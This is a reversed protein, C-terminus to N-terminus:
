EARLSDVPNAAAAKITKISLIFFAITILGMGGAFFIWASLPARFPFDRLWDNCAWWAIPIAIVCAIIVLKLFDKSLLNVVQTISAGLVKRIGIEKQRQNATYIVLGLLGLCSIFVSLGTSWNLLKALKQESQYFDKIEQDYYNYIFDNGPYLAKFYKEIELITKKQNGAGASEPRLAIQLESHDRLEARLAMPMIGTRSSSLNFDKMVGAILINKDQGLYHGVAEAPKMYGMERAFSENILFAKNSDAINLNRGALLTIGFLPIFNSDGNRVQVNIEYEKGEKQIKYASSMSGNIAPTGSISLREIGSLSKLKNTLVFIKDDPKYFDFPMTLTVINEKKFGTDMNLSYHIQRGVVITAIVFFQAIIFQSVTLTKRLWGTRSLSTNAYAQNKLVLVPKFKSLVIAPYFGALLSVVVILLPVFILIKKWTTEDFKLGEPVFDSFIKLLLPTLIIALMSALVTLLFTESLFQGILQKRTSGVTKRIGIEKARRSAQATSLNIFNICGLLLLFAALIMLGNLTKINAAGGYEQSFHLSDIPQLVLKTFNKAPDQGPQPKSYKHFAGQLQKLVTTPKTGTSLRIYLESSSSVSTWQTEDALQSLGASKITPLSIVEEQKLDTQYTENAFIGGVHVQITDNYTIVSGPIQELPVNPFYLRARTESLVVVGPETNMGKSTGALIKKEFIDFFDEDAFSIHKQKKFEIKKSNGPRDVSVKVEDFRSHIAASKEIGTIERKVTPAVPLPVGSNKFDTGAFRMHTVVRYIRDPHAYHKDFGLQYQVILYIILSASLGISLGLINLTSMQKNRSINRFAVKFYNRIM